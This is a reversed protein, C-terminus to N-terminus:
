KFLDGHTFEVKSLAALAFTIYSFYRMWILWEALHSNYFGGKLLFLLKAGLLRHVVWYLKYGYFSHLAFSASHM